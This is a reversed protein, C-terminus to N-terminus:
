GSFVSRWGGDSCVGAADDGSEKVTAAETDQFRLCDAAKRDGYSGKDNRHSEHVGDFVGEPEANRGLALDFTQIQVFVSEGGIGFVNDGAVVPGRLGDVLYRDSPAGEGAEIALALDGSASM